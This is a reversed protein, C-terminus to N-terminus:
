TTRPLRCTRPRSRTSRPRSSPSGAQRGLDPAYERRSFVFADAAALYPRLFAWATRPSRTRSTEGSTAAGSWACAPRACATSWAPPRPTTCCSSTARRCRALLPRLNRELQAAYHAHEAPGLAGGDGTEGHLLNHLRKTIAFFEPDGDIVLWRNEIGAGNGYALLTQLMEAVGGGSATSSVHWVVRDGFAARARAASAALRAARAPDPRRRAARAAPPRDQGGRPSCRRRGRRGVGRVPEVSGERSLPNRTAALVGPSSLASRAAEPRLRQHGETVRLEPSPSGGECTWRLDPDM